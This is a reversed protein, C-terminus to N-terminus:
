QSRLVTIFKIFFRVRPAFPNTKQEKQHLGYALQWLIMTRWLPVCKKEQFSKRDRDMTKVHVKEYIIKTEM